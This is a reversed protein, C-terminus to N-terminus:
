LMPLILHAISMLSILCHQPLLPAPYQILSTITRTHTIHICVLSARIRYILLYIQLRDYAPGLNPAQIHTFIYCINIINLCNHRGPNFTWRILLHGHHIAKLIQGLIHHITLDPPAHPVKTKTKTKPGLCRHM